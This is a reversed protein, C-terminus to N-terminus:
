KIDRLFLFCSLLILEPAVQGITEYPIRATSAETFQFVGRAATTRALEAQKPIEELLIRRIGEIDTPTEKAVISTRDKEVARTIDEESWGQERKEEKWGM